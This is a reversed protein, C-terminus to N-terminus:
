SIWQRVPAPCGHPLAGTPSTRGPGAFGGQGRGLLNHSTAVNTSQPGQRSAPLALAPADAMPGPNEITGSDLAAQYRDQSNNVSLNGDLVTDYPRCANHPM